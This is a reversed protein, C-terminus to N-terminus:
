WDVYASRPSMKQIRLDYSSRAVRGPPEPVRHSRLGVSVDRAQVAQYLQEFNMHGESEFFTEAILKRQNTLRLGNKSLYNQLRDVWEADDNM